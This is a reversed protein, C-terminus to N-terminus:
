KKSSPERGPELVRETKRVGGAIRGLIPRGSGTALLAEGSLLARYRASMSELTEICELLESWSPRESQPVRVAVAHAIERNALNTVRKTLADLKRKHGRLERLDIPAGTFDVAAHRNRAIESLVISLCRVDPSEVDMQRRVAMAAFVVFWMTIDGLFHPRLQEQALGIASAEEFRRVSRKM